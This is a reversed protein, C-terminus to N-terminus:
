DGGLWIQTTASPSSSCRHHENICSYLGFNDEGRRNNCPLSEKPQFECGRSKAHFSDSHLGYQSDHVIYATCQKCSQRRIDIWEVLSCTRNRFTLIDIEFKAAELYDRYVVGETDYNCTIRFKKSDEQIIQMRSKSLRYGDWNPATENVPFDLLFPQNGLLHSIKREYSQILTWTASSNLDFDCYVDFLNINEDFVKYLGPIRSGKSYSHCSRVVDTCLKGAYGPPCICKFRPSTYNTPHM